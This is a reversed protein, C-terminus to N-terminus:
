VSQKVIYQDKSLDNTCLLIISGDEHRYMNVIRYDPSREFDTISLWMEYSLIIGSAIFLYNDSREIYGITYGRKDKGNEHIRYNSIM